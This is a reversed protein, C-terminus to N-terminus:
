EDGLRHLGEALRCVFEFYFDFERLRVGAHMTGRVAAFDQVHFDRAEGIRRLLAIPVRKAEFVCRVLEGAEPTALDLHFREVTAHIDVFDRARATAKKPVVERYEPMQQCIARLKEAVIMLPPYVFIRYGDLDVAEKAEVYEHKSIDIQLKGQGGIQFAERRLREVDGKADAHAKLPILKFTVRYGGWFDALDTNPHRPRPEATVDFAVFGADRYVLNLSRELKDRVEALTLPDLDGGMSLDIDVSARSGIQHVIDLANGGKLVFLDMLDDDAFVGMIALRKIRAILELDSSPM